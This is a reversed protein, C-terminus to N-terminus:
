MMAIVLFFLFSFCLTSFGLHFSPLDKRKTASPRMPTTPPLWSTTFEAESIAETMPIESRMMARVTTANPVESGSSTVVMVAARRPSFSSRTPLIIPLLIKLIQITSPRGTAMKPPMLGSVKSITSTMMITAEAASSQITALRPLGIELFSPERMSMMKAM